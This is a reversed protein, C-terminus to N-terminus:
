DVLENRIDEWTLTGWNFRGGNLTGIAVVHAMREDPPLSFAVDYPVGNM